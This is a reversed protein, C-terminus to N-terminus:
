KETSFGYITTHMGAIKWQGDVKEMLRTERKRGREADNQEFTVWAGSGYLRVEIDDVLTPVPEPDPHEELYTRVFDDVEQWGLTEEISSDPLEMYTKTVFSEHVWKDRWGEYDRSFAAKTENNITALIAAKEKAVNDTVLDEVRNPEECALFFTFFAFVILTNIKMRALYVM